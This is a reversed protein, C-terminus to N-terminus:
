AAIQGLNQALAPRFVAQLMLLTVRLLLGGVVAEKRLAQLDLLAVVEPPLYHVLLDALWSPAVSAARSTSTTPTTASTSTPPPSPSLTPLPAPLSRPTPSRHRRGSM